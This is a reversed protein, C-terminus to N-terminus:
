GVKPASSKASSPSNVSQSHRPGNSHSIDAGELKHSLVTCTVAVPQKCISRTICKEVSNFILM